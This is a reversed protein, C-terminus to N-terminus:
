AAVLDYGHILGGLVDRHRLNNLPGATAADTPPDDPARLGLGRHPRRQSYHGVFITLVRELHRRNVILLHDLCERRVTGVWREAFANAVPTRVPTRIIRAGISRWVDDFARSLKSDRDRIL